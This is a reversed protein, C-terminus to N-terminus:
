PSPTSSSRDTANMRSCWASSPILQGARSISPWRKWPGTPCPSRGIRRPPKSRRLEVGRGRVRVLQRDVRMSRRLFDVQDVTLGFLEGPRLGTGAGTAVLARYREPVADRLALVERTALVELTSAPVRTPRRVDLCPTFAIFRDRVAAGFVAAVRGYVVEVTSPALRESLTRVLAQVDSPRVSSLPRDGIMPYIHLRLHQEISVRTSGRHVQRARWTEAYQRFTVKGASPDVYLGRALDGRVGDLFREADIKRDFHRARQRGQPTERWRARWRGDPRKEISAM